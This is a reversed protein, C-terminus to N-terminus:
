GALRNKEVKWRFGANAAAANVTNIVLSTATVSSVYGLASAAAANTPSISVDEKAPTFGLALTVTVTSAGSAVIAAGQQATMERVNSAKNIFPALIGKGAPLNNHHAYNSSDDAGTCEMSYTGMGARNAFTNDHVIFNTVNTGYRVGNRTWFTLDSNAITVSRANDIQINDYEGDVTHHGTLCAGLVKIKESPVSSTGTIVLGAGVAGLAVNPTAREATRTGIYGGSIKFRDQGILYIGEDNYDITCGTLDGDDCQSVVVSRNCGLIESYAMYLGCSFGSGLGNDFIAFDLSLFHSKDINCINSLTRYLGKGSRFYCKSINGERAGDTYIAWVDPNMLAQISEIEYDKTATGSPAAQFKFMPFAGTATFGHLASMKGHVDRVLGGGAFNISGRGHIAVGRASPFTWDQNLTFAGNGIDIDYNSATAEAAIRQLADYMATPGADLGGYAELFFHRRSLRKLQADVTTAAAGTEAPLHGISQPGTSPAALETKQAAGAALTVAEEAEDAVELLQANSEAVAIGLAVFDQQVSDYLESVQAAAAQAADAAVQSIADASGIQKKFEGLEALAGEVSVPASFNQDADLLTINDAKGVVGFPYAPLTGHEYWCCATPWGGPTQLVGYALTTTIGAVDGVIRYPSRGIYNYPATFSSGLPLNGAPADFRVNTVAIPTTDGDHAYVKLVISLDDGAYFLLDRKKSGDLALNIDM